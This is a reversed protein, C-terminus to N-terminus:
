SSLFFRAGTVSSAAAQREAVSMSSSYIQALTSATMESPLAQMMALKVFNAANLGKMYAEFEALDEMGIKNAQYAKGALTITVVRPLPNDNNNPAM